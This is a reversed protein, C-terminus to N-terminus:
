WNSARRVAARHIRSKAVPGTAGGGVAQLAGAIMAWSDSALTRTMTVASASGPATGAGFNGCQSNTNNNKVFRSTQNHTTLGSGGGEFSFVMENVSGGTVPNSASTGTGTTGDANRFPTTQDVGTFSLSGVTSTFLASATPTYGAQSVNVTNAGTTPNLLFFVQIFGEAAGAAHVKGVGCDAMPVSNYTATFVATTDVDPGQVGLAVGVLLILDSGTCTHSWSEVVGSTPTSFHGQGASSPGVADFAVAM